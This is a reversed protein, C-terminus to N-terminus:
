QQGKSTVGLRNALFPDSAPNIGDSNSQFNQPLVSPMDAIKGRGVFKSYEDYMRKSRELDGVTMAAYYASFFPIADTLPYSIAEPSSDDTLDLPYCATDLTLTYPGDPLNIYISGTSGPGYQTWSSPPGATPVPQSLIYTNFYAYPRSHLIKQGSAVAYSIQNVSIVANVGVAGGLSITSFPYVQTPATVALTGNIRICETETALQGRAMNIFNTLDLENFVEFSKDSLLLQTRQLYQDLM